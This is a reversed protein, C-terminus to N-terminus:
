IIYDQHRHVAHAPSSPDQYVLFRNDNRKVNSSIDRQHINSPIVKRFSKQGRPRQQSTKGRRRASRSLPKGTFSDFSDNSLRRATRRSHYSHSRLSSSPIENPSSSSEPSSVETIVPMGGGGHSELSTRTGKFNQARPTKPDADSPAPPSQWSNYNADDSTNMDSLPRPTAQTKMRLKKIARNALKAAPKISMFRLASESKPKKPEASEGLARSSNKLAKEYLSTALFPREKKSSFPPTADDDEHGWPQSHWSGDDSTAVSSEVAVTDLDHIRGDLVSRSHRSSGGQSVTGIERSSTPLPVAQASVKIAVKEPGVAQPTRELRDTGSLRAQPRFPRSQASSNSSGVITQLEQEVSAATGTSTRRNPRRPKTKQMPRPGDGLTAKVYERIAKGYLLSQYYKDGKTIGASVTSSIHDKAENMWRPGLRDCEDFDVIHMNAKKISALCAMKRWLFALDPNDKGFALEELRAAKQYEMAAARRDGFRRLFDGELEFRASTLIDKRIEETDNETLGRDLLFGKFDGAIRGSCKGYLFYEIRFSARFMVAARPHRMHFYLHGMSAYTRATEFTYKGLASERQVLAQILSDLFPKSKVPDKADSLSISEGYEQHEKAKEILAYSDDDDQGEEEQMIYQKQSYTGDTRSIADLDLVLKAIKHASRAFIDIRGFYKCM